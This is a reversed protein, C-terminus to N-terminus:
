ETEYRNLSSKVNTNTEFPRNHDALGYTLGFDDLFKM